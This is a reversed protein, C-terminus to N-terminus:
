NRYQSYYVSYVNSYRMLETNTFKVHSGICIKIETHHPDEVLPPSRDACDFMPGLLTLLTRQTVM